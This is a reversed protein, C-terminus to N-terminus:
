GFDKKETMNQYSDSGMSATETNMHPLLSTHTVPLLSSLIFIGVKIEARDSMAQTLSAHWKHFALDKSAIDQIFLVWSPINSHVVSYFLADFSLYNILSVGLSM